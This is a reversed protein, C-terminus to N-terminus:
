ERTPSFPDLQYEAVFAAYASITAPPHPPRTVGRLVAGLNLALVVAGFALAYSPRRLWAPLANAASPQPSDLLRAQLRTYFYPSPEDPPLARWKQLLNQWEEDSLPSNAM